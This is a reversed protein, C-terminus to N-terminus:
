SSSIGHSFFACFIGSGTKSWPACEAAVLIINMVNDGALPPSLPADEKKQVLADASEKSELSKEKEEQSDEVALMDLVNSSESIELEAERLLGLSEAISAGEGVAITAGIQNSVADDSVKLSPSPNKESKKARGSTSASSSSSGRYGFGKGTPEM